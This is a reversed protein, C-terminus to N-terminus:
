ATICMKKTALEIGNVTTPHIQASSTSTTGTVFNTPGADAQSSDYEINLTSALGHDYQKNACLTNDKCQVGTTTCVRTNICEEGVMAPGSECLVNKTVQIWLNWNGEQNNWKQTRDSSLLFLPGAVDTPDMQVTKTLKSITKWCSQTGEANLHVKCHVNNSGTLLVSYSKQASTTFQLVHGTLGAPDTEKLWATTTTASFDANTTHSITSTSYVAASLGTDGCPLGPTCASLPVGNWTLVSSSPKCADMSALGGSGYNDGCYLTGGGDTFAAFKKGKNLCFAIGAPVMDAAAVVAVFNMTTGSPLVEKQYEAYQGSSIGDTEAKLVAADDKYGATYEKWNTSPSAILHSRLVNTIGGRETEGSFKSVFCGIYHSAANPM